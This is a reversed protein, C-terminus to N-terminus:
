SSKGLYIEKFTIGCLSPRIFNCETNPNYVSEYMTPQWYVPHSEGRDQLWGMDKYIEELKYSKGHIQSETFAFSFM